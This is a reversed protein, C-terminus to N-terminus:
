EGRAAMRRGTAGRAAAVAGAPRRGWRAMVGVAAAVVEDVSIQDVGGARHLVISHENVPAWIRPDTGGLLAVQPIGLAAAIHMLGGDPSLVFHSLSVAAILEDLTPTSLLIPRTRMLRAVEEAKGKDGPFLRNTADGPAWSLAVSLGLRELLADAAQAFCQQPWRNARKRASIHVLAVHDGPSVGLAALRQGLKVQAQPNPILTLQRGAPAIGIAALQELGSDVEHLAMAKPDRGLNLFFPFPQLVQTSYGLRWPAGSAYALWAGSRSAPRGMVIGLDFRRARLDRIVRALNWLASLGFWRSAHKSKIYTLVEDVDPNREVIARCHDAVLITLHAEPFARRLARLAPTTCLVDGINDKRVMLIRRVREPAYPVTRGPWRRQLCFELAFELWHELWTM